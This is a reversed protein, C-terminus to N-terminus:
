ASRRRRGPEAPVPRTFWEKVIATMWAPSPEGGGEIVRTLFDLWLEVHQLTTM